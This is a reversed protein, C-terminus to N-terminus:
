FYGPKLGHPHAAAAGPLWRLFDAYQGVVRDPDFTRAYIRRLEDGLKQRKESSEVLRSLREVFEDCTPAICEPLELAEEGSFLPNRGQSLTLTPLGAQMAEMCATMGGIPHSDVFIDALRLLLTVDPRRDLHIVRSGAEMRKIEKKVFDHQKRDGGGVLVHHLDPHRQLVRDMCEFYLRSGVLKSLSTVTISMIADDPVGLDTRTVTGVPEEDAGLSGPLPLYHCRATEGHAKCPELTIRRLALHCEFAHICAAFLHDTNHHFVTIPVAGGSVAILGGLWDGMDYNFVIDIKDEEFMHRLARALVMPRRDNAILRVPIGAEVVRDHLASPELEPVYFCTDFGHERLKDVVYFHSKGGGRTDLLHRIVYAVRIRRDGDAVPKVRRTGFAAEAIRGVLRDVRGDEFMGHLHTQTLDIASRLCGVAMDLSAKALADEAMCLLKERTSLFAPLAPESEACPANRM